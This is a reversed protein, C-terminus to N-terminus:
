YFDFSKGHKKDRVLDKDPINCIEFLMADDGSMLAKVVLAYAGLFPSYDASCTSTQSIKELPKLPPPTNGKAQSPFSPLGNSL